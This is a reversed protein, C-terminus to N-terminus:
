PSLIAVIRAKAAWNPASVAVTSAATPIPSHGARESISPPSGKM